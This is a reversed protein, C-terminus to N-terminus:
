DQMIVRNMSIENSILSFEIFKYNNNIGINRNLTMIECTIYDFDNMGLRSHITDDM